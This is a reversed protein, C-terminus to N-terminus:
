AKRRRFRLAALGLGAVGLISAPEPVVVNSITIANSSYSIDGNYGGLFTVSNFATGTINNATVITFVDGTLDANGPLSTPDIVLNANNINTLNGSTALRDYDTGVVAGDGVIKITLTTFDSGNKQINLTNTTVSGTGNAVTLIGAATGVGPNILSGRVAYSTTNSTASVGYLLISGSGSLNTVGGWAASAGNNLEVSAGSAISISQTTLNAAVTGFALNGGNVVTPGTYSVAGNLRLQGNGTKTIGSGAVTESTTGTVITQLQVLAGAGAGTSLGNAVDFTATIPVSPAGSLSLTSYQLRAVQAGVMFDGTRVTITSGNVVLPGGIRTTDGGNTTSNREIVFGTNATVTTITGASLTNLSTGNASLAYRLTGGAMEIPRGGFAGGGTARVQGSTIKYSGLYGTGDSLGIIGGTVAQGSTGQGAATILTSASGGTIVRAITFVDTTNVTSLTINLAGSNITLTQGNTFGVGSGNGRFTSGDLLELPAGGVNSRVEYVAGSFVRILGSGAGSTSFPNIVTGETIDIGGSFGSSNTTTFQLTGGGSKTIKFGGSLASVSAFALTSGSAINWTQDATVSTPIGGLSVTGTGTITFGGAGIALTRADALNGGRPLSWKFSGTNNITIGLVNAAARIEPTVLTSPDGTNAFAFVLTDSTGPGVAPPTASATSWNGALTLDPSVGSAGTWTYDDARLGGGLLVCVAAALVRLAIATRMWSERLITLNM